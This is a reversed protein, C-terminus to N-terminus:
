LQKTMVAALLMKRSASRHKQQDTKLSERWLEEVDRSFVAMTIWSSESGAAGGGWIRM